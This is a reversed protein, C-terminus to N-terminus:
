GTLSPSPSPVQSSYVQYRNLSELLFSYDGALKPHVVVHAPGERRVYPFFNGRWHAKKRAIDQPVKDWSTAYTQVLRCMRRLVM